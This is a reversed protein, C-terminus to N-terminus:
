LNKKYATFNCSYVGKKSDVNTITLVIIVAYTRTNDSKIEPIITAIYTEGKKLSHKNLAQHLLWNEEKSLEKIELMAKSNKASFNFMESKIKNIDDKSLNEGAKSASARGKYGLKANSYINEEQNKEIENKNELKVFTEFVDWFEYKNNNVTILATIFYFTSKNENPVPTIRVVYTQGNEAKIEALAKKLGWDVEKTIRKTKKTSIGIENNWNYLTNRYEEMDEKSINSGVYNIETIVNYGKEDDIYTKREAFAFNVLIFLLIFIYFKKM